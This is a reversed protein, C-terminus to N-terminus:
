YKNVFVLEVITFIASAERELWLAAESYVINVEMGFLWKFTLVFLLWNKALFEYCPGSSHDVVPSINVMVALWQTICQEQAMYSRFTCIGDSNGKWRPLYVLCTVYQCLSSITLVTM